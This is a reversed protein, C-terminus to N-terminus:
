CGELVCGENVLGGLSIQDGNLLMFLLLCGGLVEGWGTIAEQLDKCM